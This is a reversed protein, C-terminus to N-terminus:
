FTKFKLNIIQSIEKLGTTNIQFKYESEYSGYNINLDGEIIIKVNQCDTLIKMLKNVANNNKESNYLSVTGREISDGYLPNFYYKEKKDTYIKLHADDGIHAINGLSYTSIKFRFGYDDIILILFADSNYTANNSFSGQIGIQYIYQKGTKEEWEDVYNGITFDTLLKNGEYDRLEEDYKSETNKHIRKQNFGHHDFGKKDYGNADYGEKDYGLENYGSLDFGEENYKTNTKRHIGVRNFGDENFGSVNYGNDDYETKTIKHINKNKGEVYFGREDVKSCGFLIVFSVLLFFYTKM